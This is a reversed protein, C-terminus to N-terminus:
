ELCGSMDPERVKQREDDYKITLILHPYPSSKITLILHHNPVTAISLAAQVEPGDATPESHSQYFILWIYAVLVPFTLLKHSM